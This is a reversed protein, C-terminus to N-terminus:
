FEVIFAMSNNASSSAGKFIFLIPLLFIIGIPTKGKMSILESLLSRNTATIAIM